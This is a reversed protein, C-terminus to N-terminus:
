DGSEETPQQLALVWYKMVTYNLLFTLTESIGKSIVLGAGVGSVLIFLFLTSAVYSAGFLAIFRLGEGPINSLERKKFTFFRHLLFSAIAGAIRSLTHAYIFWTGAYHSLVTYLAMDILFVFAGVVMYMPLERGWVAVVFRKATAPCDQADPENAPM